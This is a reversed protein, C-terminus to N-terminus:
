FYNWTNDKKLEQIISRKFERSNVKVEKSKSMFYNREENVPEKILSTIRRRKYQCKTCQDPECIDFVQVSNRGKVKVILDFQSTM